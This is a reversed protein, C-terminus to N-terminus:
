YSFFFIGLERLCTFSNLDRFEMRSLARFFNFCFDMPSGEAARQSKNRFTLHHYATFYVHSHIELVLVSHLLSGNLHRIRNLHWIPPVSTPKYYTFTFMCFMDTPGNSNQTCYKEKIFHLWGIDKLLGLSVLLQSFYLYGPLIYKELHRMTLTIFPFPLILTHM